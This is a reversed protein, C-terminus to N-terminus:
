RSFLKRTQVSWSPVRLFSGMNRPLRFSNMMMQPLYAPRRVIHLMDGYTPLVRRGQEVQWVAPVEGLWPAGSDKYGPYPPLSM